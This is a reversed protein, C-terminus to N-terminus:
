EEPLFPRQGSFGINHVYKPTEELYDLWSCYGWIVEYIVGAVYHHKNDRCLLRHLSRFVVTYYTIPLSLFYSSHCLQTEGNMTLFHFNGWSSLNDINIMAMNKCSCTSCPENRDLLVKYARKLYITLPPWTPNIRM